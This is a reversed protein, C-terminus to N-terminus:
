TVICAARKENTEQSSCVYDDEFYYFTPLPSACPAVTSNISPNVEVSWLKALENVSKCRCVDGISPAGSDFKSSIVGARILHTPHRKSSMMEAVVYKTGQLSHNVDLCYQIYERIVSSRPQLNSDSSTCKEFVSCNFLAPRALMVGSCGSWQRVMDMDKRTYIDGNAVVPVQVADVIPRLLSWDAPEKYSMYRERCHVSIAAAGANELRRCLEVTGQVTPLIRIKATIPISLERSLTRIIDAAVHPTSLLAAGMGGSVSFKQPYLIGNLCTTM